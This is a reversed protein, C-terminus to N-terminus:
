FLLYLSQDQFLSRFILMRMVENSGELIQYVRFDWMYQQVVYDKLYGYGGYMQLVQNCIVFCEDIVFFKVMFCLVVVEKREEQLVVVVNCIM